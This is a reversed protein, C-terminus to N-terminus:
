EGSNSSGATEEQIRKPQTYQLLTSRGTVVFGALWGAVLMIAAAALLGHIDSTDRFLNLFSGLALLPYLALGGVTVLRQATWRQHLFALVQQDNDPSHRARWGVYHLELLACLAVFIMSGFWVRLDLLVAQNLFLEVAGILLPLAADWFDPVWTFVMADVSMHHWVVVFFFLTVTAMLWQLSSFHHYNDAVVTALQGLAVGQVVSLISLSINTFSATARGRVTTGNDQAARQADLHSAQESRQMGHEEYEHHFM